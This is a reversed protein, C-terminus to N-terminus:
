EPLDKGHLKEKRKKAAAEAQKADRIAKVEDATVPPETPHYVDQLAKCMTPRSVGFIKAMEVQTAGTMRAFRRMRQAFLPSSYRGYNRQREKTAKFKKTKSRKVASALEKTAKTIRDMDGSRLAHFVRKAPRSVEPYPSELHHQAVRRLKDHLTTM